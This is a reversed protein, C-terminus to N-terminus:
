SGTMTEFGLFFALNRWLHYIIVAYPFTDVQVLRPNFQFQFKCKSLIIVQHSFSLMKLDTM